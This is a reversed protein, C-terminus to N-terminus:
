ERPAALRQFIQTFDARNEAERLVDSRGVFVVGDEIVIRLARLDGYVQAPGRLEIRGGATINGQVKGYVIANHVRIEGKVLAEEGVTLTGDESDITGEIRGNMELSGSFALAGRFETDASLIAHEASNGFADAPSSAARAGPAAPRYTESPQLTIRKDNMSPTATTDDDDSSSSSEEPRFTPDAGSHPQPQPPHPRAGRRSPAHPAAHPGASAHPVPAAHLPNASAPPHPAQHEAPAEDLENLASQLEPDAQHEPEPEDEVATASAAAAHEAGPEPLADSEDSHDNDDRPAPRPEDTAMPEQEEPPAATPESHATAPESEDEGKSKIEFENEGPAPGSEAEAGMEASPSSADAEGPQMEERAAPEAPAQSAREMEVHRRATEGAATEAVVPEAAISEPAKEKVEDPAPEARAAASPHIAPIPPPVARRTPKAKPSSLHLIKDFM